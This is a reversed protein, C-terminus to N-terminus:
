ACTWNKYPAILMELTYPVKMPNGIIVPERVNYFHGILFLVAQKLPYPIVGGSAVDSLSDEGIENAITQECVDILDTIYSDDDSIDVRCHSKAEDLTIYM